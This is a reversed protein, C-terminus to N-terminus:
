NEMSKPDYAMVCIFVCVCISRIRAAVAARARLSISCRPMRGSAGSAASNMRDANDM